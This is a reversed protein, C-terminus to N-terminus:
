CYCCVVFVDFGCRECTSRVVKVMKNRVVVLRILVVMMAVLLNMLSVHDDYRFYSVM